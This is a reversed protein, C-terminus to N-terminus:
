LTNTQASEEDAESVAEEDIDEELRMLTILMLAKDQLRSSGIDRL